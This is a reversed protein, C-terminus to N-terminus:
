RRPGGHAPEPDLDIVLRDPAVLSGEFSARWTPAAAIGDVDQGDAIVDGHEILHLGLATLHTGVDEPPLGRFHCQLDTLGLVELGVTDMVADEDSGSVRFYRVNFLMLEGVLAAEAPDLLHGPGCWLAVPPALKLLAGAVALFCRARDAASLQMVMLESLLIRSTCAAAAARLDDGAGWSQSFDMGEPSDSAVFGATQLPISRGEAETTVETHSIAFAGAADVMVRAGPVVEAARAALAAVDLDPASDYLFAVHALRRDHGPPVTM